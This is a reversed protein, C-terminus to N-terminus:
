FDIRFIALSQFLCTEERAVRTFLFSEFVTKLFSTLARLERFTLVESICVGVEIAPTKKHEPARHGCQLIPERGLHHSFTNSRRPFIRVLAVNRSQVIAEQRIWAFFLPPGPAFFDFFSSTVRNALRTVASTICFFKQKTQSIESFPSPFHNTCDLSPRPSSFFNKIPSPPNKRSALPLIQPFQTMGALLPFLPPAQWAPSAKTYKFDFITLPLHFFIASKDPDM